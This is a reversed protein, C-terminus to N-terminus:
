IKLKAGAKIKNPDSINNAKALAAVTTNNAKAIQSLTDGKNITYDGRTLTQAITPGKTPTGGGLTITQGVNIKNPNSINNAKALNTAANGSGYVDKAISWLTDGPQVKYQIGASMPAPAAMGRNLAAPRGPMPQPAGPTRTPQAAYGFPNPRPQTSNGSGLLQDIASIAPNQVGPNFAMRPDSPSLRSEDKIRSSTGFPDWVQATQQPRQQPIPAAQSPTLGMQAYARDVSAPRVGPPMQVSGAQQVGQTGISRTGSQEARATELNPAQFGYSPRVQTTQVTRKTPSQGIIGGYIENLNTGGGAQPRMQYSGDPMRVLQQRAAQLIDAYGQPLGGSQNFDAM